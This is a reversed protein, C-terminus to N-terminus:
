MKTLVLSYMTDEIGERGEREGGEGRGRGEREGGEGRGRGEREGGEIGERGKMELPHDAPTAKAEGGLSTVVVTGSTQSMDDLKRERGTSTELYPTM